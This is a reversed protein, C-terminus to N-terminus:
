EARSREIDDTGSALFGLVMGSVHMKSSLNHFGSLEVCIGLGPNVLRDNYGRHDVKKPFRTGVTAKDLFDITDPVFNALVQGSFLNSLGQSLLKVTLVFGTGLCLSSSDFVCCLLVFHLYLVIQIGHDSGASTSSLSTESSDIKSKKVCFFEAIMFVIMYSGFNCCPTRFNIRLFSTLLLDSIVILNSKPPTDISCPPTHLLTM